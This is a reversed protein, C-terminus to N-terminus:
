SLISLNGCADVCEDGSINVLISMRLKVPREKM